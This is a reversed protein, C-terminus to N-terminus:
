VGDTDGETNSITLPTSSGRPADIVMVNISPALALSKGNPDTLATTNRSKWLHPQKNNLWFEAAGTDPPYYKIFEQAIVGKDKDYFFKTDPHSYGLARKYLARTVRGDAVPGGMWWAQNFEPYEERWVKLTNPHVGFVEAIEADKFGMMRVNRAIKNYARRYKIPPGLHDCYGEAFHEDWNDDDDPLPDGDAWMRQMGFGSPKVPKIAKPLNFPRREM